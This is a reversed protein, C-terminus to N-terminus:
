SRGHSASQSATRPISPDREPGAVIGADHLRGVAACDLGLVGELVEDTHQGLLPAPRTAGRVQAAARVPTGAARHRGVGPTDILEFLSQAPADPVAVRPDHAVLDRVTRYLGWCVRHEDFLRAIDALRHAACWGAIIAAIEERAQYRDAERMFDLGLRSQLLGMQADLRAARLLAKWQGASIGVIMIRRADATAFDRGFTGYVHNGLSPREEELLEAEAIMGLHSLAAFAVDSLALRLEAGKGSRRRRDFAALLAFAAQYACALDWAPVVNNIPADITGGGTIAPFGTACNVTYDVATSGDANGCITCTIMDPRRAALAAHSLWDFALNTLLLGGNEGASVALAQVLERGEPRRLDVAISRKGKNLGTWYLSRGGPEVPLRGYDIGGGIPDVRIVDAGYQALTMGALRAAIFASSELVHMPRLWDYNM